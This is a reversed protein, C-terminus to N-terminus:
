LTERSKQTDSRRSELISEGFDDTAPESAVFNEWVKDKPCLVVMEGIRTIGVEDGAFRYENPLRVAQNQGNIFLKATLM